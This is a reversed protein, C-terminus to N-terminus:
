VSYITPLTLHTYSVAEFHSLFDIRIIRDHRLQSIDTCAAGKLYKRLLMVFAPPFFPSDEKTPVMQLYSADNLLSVLLTDRFFTFYFRGESPMFVKNVRQNMLFGRLELVVKSLTLGDIQM